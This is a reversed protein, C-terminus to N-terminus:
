WGASNTERPHSPWARVDLRQHSVAGRRKTAWPKVRSHRRQPWLLKKIAQRFYCNRATYVWVNVASNSFSLSITGLWAKYLCIPLSIDLFSVVLAPTWFLIFVGVVIAVTRSAKRQRKADVACFWSALAYIKRNQERAARFIRIYCFIIVVFPFVIGILTAALYFKPLDSREDIAFRLNAVTLSLVWTFAIAAACRHPTVVHVYRYGSLIAIYRDITVACLSYTSAILAQVTFVDSLKSLIHHNGVVNLVARSVWLPIALAGVEFDALALSAIFYNTSTHLERTRYVALIVLVNGLVALIGSVSNVTTLIIAEVIHLTTNSGWKCLSLSDFGTFTKNGAM